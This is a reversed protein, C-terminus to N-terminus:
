MTSQSGSASENLTTPVDHWFGWQIDPDWGNYKGILRLPATVVYLDAYSMAVTNQFGVRKDSGSGAGMKSTNGQIGSLSSDIGIARGTQSDGEQVSTLYADKKGKDDLAELSWGPLAQGTIPDVAFHSMFIKGANKSGALFEEMEKAKDQVIKQREEPKKAEWDPHISTWYTAPVKIHWKINMANENLTNMLVPISNTFDLWGKDRFLAAHPPLAYMSRGPSPLCDHTAFKKKYAQLNEISQNRRHVFPITEINSANDWDGTYKLEIIQKTKEDKGGFRSFEAELHYLGIIKANRKDKIFEAFLNGFFGYDMLRELMLYNLDNDIIFQNIEPIDPFTYTLENNAKDVKYYMLGRGFQMGVKRVILPYATTSNELKKRSLKPWNNAPGWPQYEGSDLETDYTAPTQPAAYLSTSMVASAAPMYVEFHPTATKTKSM